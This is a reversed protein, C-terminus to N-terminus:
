SKKKKKKGNKGRQIQKRENGKKKSKKRGTKKLMYCNWHNLVLTQELESQVRFYLASNEEQINM